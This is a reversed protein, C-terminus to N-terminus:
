QQKQVHDGFVTLWKDHTPILRDTSVPHFEPDETQMQWDEM